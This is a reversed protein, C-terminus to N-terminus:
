KRHSRRSKRHSKRISRRSKRTSKRTSKRGSRRSRRSKRAKSGFRHSRKASRKLSKKAVKVVRIDRGSLDYMKDGDVRLYEPGEITALTDNHADNDATYTVTIKGNKASISTLKGSRGLSIKLDNKVRQKVQAMYKKARQKAENWTSDEEDSLCPTFTVRYAQM